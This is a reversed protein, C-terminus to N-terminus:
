GGLGGNAVVTSTERVRTRKKPNGTWTTRVDVRVAPTDVLDPNDTVVTMTGGAARTIQISPGAGSPWATVTFIESEGPLEAAGDAAAAFLTQLAASDTVDVWNATRVQELRQQLVKSAV